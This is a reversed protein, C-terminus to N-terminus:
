GAFITVVPAKFAPVVTGGDPTDARTLTTPAQESYRQLTMRVTFLGTATPM